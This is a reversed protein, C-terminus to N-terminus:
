ACSRSLSLRLSPRAAWENLERDDRSCFKVCDKTLNSRGRITACGSRHLVLYNPKPNRQANIFFGDPNGSATCAAATSQECDCRRREGRHRETGGIWRGSKGGAALLSASQWPDFVLVAAEFM